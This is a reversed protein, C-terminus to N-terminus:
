KEERENPDIQVMNRENNEESNMMEDVVFSTKRQARPAAAPAIALAPALAAVAADDRRGKRKKDVVGVGDADTRRSRLTRQDDMAGM